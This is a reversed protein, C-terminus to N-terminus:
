NLRRLHPYDRYPLPALWIPNRQVFFSRGVFMWSEARIFEVPHQLQKKSPVAQYSGGGLARESM